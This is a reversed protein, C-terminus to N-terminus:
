SRWRSHGGTWAERDRHARDYLLAGYEMQAGGPKGGPRKSRVGPGHFRPRPSLAEVHALHRFLGRDYRGSGGLFLLPQLYLVATSVVLAARVFAEAGDVESATAGSYPPNGIALDFPAPTIPSAPVADLFSVGAITTAGARVAIGLGPALPDLDVVTIASPEHGAELLATLIAGDGVSNELVRASRSLGEAYAFAVLFRALDPDTYCRDLLDRPAVGDTPDFNTRM